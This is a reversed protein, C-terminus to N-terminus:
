KPPSTYIYLKIYVSAVQRTRVCLCVCLTKKNRIHRTIRKGNRFDSPMKPTSPCHKMHDHRRKWRVEIILYVAQRIPCTKATADEPLFPFQCCFFFTVAAHFKIKKRKKIM